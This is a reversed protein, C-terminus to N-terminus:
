KPSNRPTSAGTDSGDSVSNKESITPDSPIGLVSPLWGGDLLHVLRAYERSRAGLSSNLDARDFDLITANGADDILLNPPRIDQHRVGAAHINKM